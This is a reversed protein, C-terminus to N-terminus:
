DIETRAGIYKSLSRLLLFIGGALSSFPSSVDGQELKSWWLRTMLSSAAFAAQPFILVQSCPQFDSGRSVGLGRKWLVRPRQEAQEVGKVNAPSKWVCFFSCEEVTTFSKAVRCRYFSFRACTKERGRAPKRGRWGRAFAQTQKEPRAERGGSGQKRSESDSETNKRAM